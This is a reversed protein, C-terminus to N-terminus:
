LLVVADMEVLAGKPLAAVGVAARAPPDEDFFEAYAENIEAFQDLQASSAAEGTGLGLLASRRWGGDYAGGFHVPSGDNTWRALFDGADFNLGHMGLNTTVGDAIKYWEGYENPEYSLLDIFGPAVVRGTADVTRAGTIPELSIATIRDGDIGVNAIGDYGTEPDIVRGGTIAIDFTHGAAPTPDAGELAPPDLPSATTTTTGGPGSFQRTLPDTRPVRSLAVGTVAGFGLTLLM